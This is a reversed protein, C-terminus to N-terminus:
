YACAASSVFSFSLASHFFGSTVQESASVLEINKPSEFAFGKLFRKPVFMTVGDDLVIALDCYRDKIPFEKTIEGSLPDYGLVEKFFETLYMVTDDETANRDRAKQFVGAFKKLKSLTPKDIPM